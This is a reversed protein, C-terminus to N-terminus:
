YDILMFIVIHAFRIKDKYLNKKWIVLYKIDLESIRLIIVSNSFAPTVETFSFSSLVSFRWKAISPTALISFSPLMLTSPLQIAVRLRRNSVSGTFNLVM